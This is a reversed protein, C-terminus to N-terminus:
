SPRQQGPSCSKMEANLSRMRTCEVDSGGRDIREVVVRQGIRDEIAGVTKGAAAVVRYARAKFKQYGLNGAKRAKGGSLSAELKVAEQKLDVGMLWPAAFPVFLLTLIYGLIYTVAYGAAINAQQQRLVDDALGLQALACTATGIMLSQILSGSALGAATGPVLHFAFAFVLVLALGIVVLAVGVQSLTRLSLSAFFEPGSKYEITFVFLSFFISKFLFSSPESNDLCWPWSCRAPQLVSV